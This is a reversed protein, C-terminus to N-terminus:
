WKYKRFPPVKHLRPMLKRYRPTPRPDRLHISECGPAQRNTKKNVFFAELRPAKPM